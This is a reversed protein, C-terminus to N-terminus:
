RALGAQRIAAMWTRAEQELSPDLVFAKKMYIDAEAIRGTFAAARAFGWINDEDVHGRRIGPLYTRYAEEPRNQMLYGAALLCDVQETDPLLQRLKLAATIWGAIDNAPGHGVVEEYLSDPGPLYPLVAPANARPEGRVRYIAWAGQWVSVHQPVSVLDLNRGVFSRWLDVMRADWRYPTVHTRPRFQVAVNAAIYNCNWQRLRRLIGHGDRCERALEWAPNRDDIGEARRQGPLLYTQHSGVVLVGRVDSREALSLRMSEYPAICMARYDAASIGGVLYSVAPASALHLNLPVATNLCSVAFLLALAPVRFVPLLRAASSAAPVSMAGSLMIWSALAYRAGQGPMGVFILVASTVAWLTMWRAAHTASTFHVLLLPMLWLLAPQHWSWEHAIRSPLSLIIALTPWGSRRMLDVAQSSEPNWLAGPFVGAMIPWTPNGLLLWNKALWPLAPALALAVLVLVFRVPRNWWRAGAMLVGLGLFIFGSYKSAAGFGLLAAGTAVLPSAHSARGRLICVAGAVPFAAAALDSKGTIFAELLLGSSAVLWFAIWGAQVGAGRRVWAVLMIFAAVFPVSQILRSLSDDGATLVLAYQLESLLPYQFGSDGGDPILRHLRMWAEPAALHYAIVDSDTLPLCSSLLVVFGAPACLLLLVLPPSWSAMYRIGALLLRHGRRMSIIALFLSCQAPLGPFFLGTLAIGLFLTGVLGFGWLLALLFAWDHDRRLGSWKLLPSGACALAFGYLLLFAGQGCLMLIGRGTGSVTVASTAAPLSRLSAVLDPVHAPLITSCWICWVALAWITLSM